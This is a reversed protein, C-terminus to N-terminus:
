ASSQITTSSATHSFCCNSVRESDDMCALVMEPLSDTESESSLISEDESTAQIATTSSIDFAADSRHARLQCTSESCHKRSASCVQLFRKGKSQLLLLLLSGVRPPKVESKKTFTKREHGRKQLLRWLISTKHVKKMKGITVHTKSSCGRHNAATLADFPFGSM